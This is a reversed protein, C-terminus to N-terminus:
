GVKPVSDIPSYVCRTSLHLSDSSYPLPPTLPNLMVVVAVVVVVVVAVVAVVIDAAVVLIM